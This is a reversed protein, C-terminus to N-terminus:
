ADIIEDVTRGRAQEVFSRDSYFDEVIPWVEGADQMAALQENFANRLAEDEYRFGLAGCAGGGVEVSELGERPQEEGNEDEAGKAIEYDITIKTLALADIEGNELAQFMDDTHQYRQIKRDPVGAEEAADVEVAGELVGLRADRERFDEFKTLGLPNGAQVAFAEAAGCYDPNAFLVDQAREPTIFMGAAIVDMRDAHLGDILYRFDTVVHGKVEIGLEEFVASALTPAIGTVKGDKGEFGHPKEDAIGLVIGTERYLSLPDPADTATTIDEGSCAAAALATMLLACVAVRPATSRRLWGM